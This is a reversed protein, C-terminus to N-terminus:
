EGCSVVYLPLDSFRDRGHLERVELAVTVGCVIGGAREILRRSAALTGGTALVDDILLVRRGTLDLGEAPIELAATGYELDYEEHLVPPPLKGAKRVALVGTGLEVAVASGLLFGRADLGGVLDNVVLRFGHTDALVPTLDQFVIGPAPYDAVFRTLTRLAWRADAGAPIEPTTM